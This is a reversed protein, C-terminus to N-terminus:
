KKNKPSSKKNRFKSLHKCRVRSEAYPNELDTNDPPDSTTELSVPNSCVEDSRTDLSNVLAV